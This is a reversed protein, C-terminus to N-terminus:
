LGVVALKLHGRNLAIRQRGGVAADGGVRITPPRDTHPFFFTFRTDGVRVTNESVTAWHLQRGRPDLALACDAKAGMYGRIENTLVHRPSEDRDRGIEAIERRTSGLFLLQVM